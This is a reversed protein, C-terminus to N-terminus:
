KSFKFRRTISERLTQNETRLVQNEKIIYTESNNTSKETTQDTKNLYIKVPETM